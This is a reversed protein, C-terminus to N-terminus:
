VGLEKVARTRKKKSVQKNRTSNRRESSIVPAEKARTSKDYRMGPRMGNVLGTVSELGEYRSTPKFMRALLMIALGLLAVLVGAIIFTTEFDITLREVVDNMIKESGNGTFQSQFSTAFHPILVGFIIGSVALFIGTDTIAHGLQGWGQRRVSRLTVIILALLLMILLLTWMVYWMMGFAFPAFAFAQWATQGNSTKPLDSATYRVKPLFDNSELLQKQLTLQESAYDLGYPQCTARLPDLTTTTTECMPLSQLRNMAYESLDHALQQRSSSFDITFHPESASRNLWAYWGDIFQEASNQLIGPTFSQSALQQVNKDAFISSADQKINNDIVAPIFRDYAKTDSLARKIHSPNGFTIYFALLSVFLTILLRLGSRSFALAYRRAPSM